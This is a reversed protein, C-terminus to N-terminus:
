IYKKNYLKQPVQCKMSKYVYGPTLKKFANQKDWYCSNMQTGFVTSKYNKNRKFTVNFYLVAINNMVDLNESESFFQFLCNYYFTKTKFKVVLTPKFKMYLLAENQLFNITNM